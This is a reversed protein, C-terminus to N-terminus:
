TVVLYVNIYRTYKRIIGITSLIQGFTNPNRGRMAAANYKKLVKYINAAYLQEIGTQRHM